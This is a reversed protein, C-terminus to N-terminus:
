RCVYRHTYTFIHLMYVHMCLYICINMYEYEYMDALMFICKCEYMHIDVCVYICVGICMCVGLM